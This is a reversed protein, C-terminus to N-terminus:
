FMYRKQEIESIKIVIQKDKTTIPVYSPWCGGQKNETGIGDIQFQNGCNNCIMLNSEQRYGKKESYCVDCADLALHVENDSGIVAFFQMRVGETNYHFFKAKTSLSTIPIELNEGVIKAETTGGQNSQLLLVGSFGIIGITIIAMFFKGGSVGEDNVRKQTTIESEKKTLQNEEITLDQSM